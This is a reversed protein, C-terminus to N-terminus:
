ICLKSLPMDNKFFIKSNRNIKFKSLPMDNMFSILTKIYKSNHYLCITWLIKNTNKHIKLKSLFIDDVFCILTKIYKVISVTMVKM